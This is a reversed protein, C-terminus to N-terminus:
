PIKTVGPKQLRSGRRVTAEGSKQKTEIAEEQVVLLHLMSVPNHRQLLHIM